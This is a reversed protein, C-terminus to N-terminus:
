LLTFHMFSYEPIVSLLPFLPIKRTKVWMLDVWLINPIQVFYSWLHQRCIKLGNEPLESYGVPSKFKTEQHSLTLHNRSVRSLKAGGECYLSPIQPTLTLQWDWRFIYRKLTCYGRESKPCAVNPLNDNNLMGLRSVPIVVRPFPSPACVETVACATPHAKQSVYLM